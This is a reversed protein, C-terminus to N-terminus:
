EAVSFVVARLCYLDFKLACNAMSMIARLKLFAHMGFNGINARVWELASVQDMLGFNGPADQFFV